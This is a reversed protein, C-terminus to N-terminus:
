KNQVQMTESGKRCMLKHEGGVGAGLNQDKGKFSFLAKRRTGGGRRNKKWRCYETTRIPFHYALLGTFLFIIEKWQSALVIEKTCYNCPFWIQLFFVLHENTLGMIGLQQHIPLHIWNLWFVEYLLLGPSIISLSVVMELTKGIEWLEQPFIIYHSSLLSSLM